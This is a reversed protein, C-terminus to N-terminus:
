VKQATIKVTVELAEKGNNASNQYFEYAKKGYYTDIDNNADDSDWKSSFTLKAVSNTDASSTYKGSILTKDYTYYISFPYEVDSGNNVFLTVKGNGNDSIANLDTLETLIEEDFLKVSILQYSIESPHTTMSYITVSSTEEEAGPFFTSRKLDAYEEFIENENIFFSVNWESVNAQINSVTIEKYSFFWAYTNTIFLMGLVSLIMLKHKIGKARSRRIERLLNM